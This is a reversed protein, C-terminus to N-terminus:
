AGLSTRIRELSDIARLRDADGLPHVSYRAEEFLGTLAGAANESVRLSRVALIEIERPTLATQDAVGRAGLLACFRQYCTLISARVDGGIRLEEITAQVARAAAKREEPPLLAPAPGRRAVTGLRLFFVLALIAGLIALALFLGAPLGLVTPLAEMAPPAAGDSDGAPANGRVVNAIRPWLLLLFFLLGLGLFNGIWDLPTLTRAKSSARKRRMGQYLLLAVALVLCAFMAFQLLTSAVASSILGDSTTATGGGNPPAPIAEGGTELNAVNFALGAALLVALFLLLPVAWSSRARLLRSVVTRLGRP